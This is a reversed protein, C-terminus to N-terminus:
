PRWSYSDSIWAELICSRLSLNLHPKLSTKFYKLKISQMSKFINYKNKRKDVVREKERKREREEEFPYKLKEKPAEYSYGQGWGNRGGGGGGGGNYGNNWGWGQVPAPHHFHHNHQHFHHDHHHYYGPLGYARAEQCLIVTVALVLVARVVGM